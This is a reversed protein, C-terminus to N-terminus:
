LSLPSLKSILAMYSQDDANERSIKMENFKEEKEMELENYFDNREKQIENFFMIRETFTTM